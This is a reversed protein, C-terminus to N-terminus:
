GLLSGLSGLILKYAILGGGIFIISLCTLHFFIRTDVNDIPILENTLELLIMFSYIIGIITICLGLPSYLMSVVPSIIASCVLPIFATTTAGLLKIYKADKKMVRTAIFYVGSIALLILAYILFNQGIVKLYPVDKLNEWVWKVESSLFTKVKVASIMTTILKILTMIGVIILLLISVNKIDSLKNEEKKFNECPKLLTGLIYSLYNINGEIMTPQLNNTNNTNNNYEQQQSPQQFSNINMNNSNNNIYQTENNVGSSINQVIDNTQQQLYAGCKVCFKANLDNLTGCNSCTRNNTLNENM